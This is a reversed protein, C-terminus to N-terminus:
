AHSVERAENAAPTDQGLWRGVAEQLDRRCLSVQIVNFMDSGTLQIDLWVREGDLGMDTIGIYAGKKAQFM